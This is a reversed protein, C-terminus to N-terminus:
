CRSSPGRWARTSPWAPTPPISASILAPTAAEAIFVRQYYHHPPISAENASQLDLFTCPRVESAAPTLPDGLDSLLHDLLRYGAYVDGTHVFQASAIPGRPTNGLTVALAVGRVALQGQAAPQVYREEIVRMLRPFDTAPYPLRGHLVLHQLFPPPPTVHYRTATVVDDAMLPRMQHGVEYVRMTMETVVGYNFGSGLVAWFLEANEKASARLVAGDAIVLEVETLSDSPPDSAATSTASAEESSSGGCGVSPITGM